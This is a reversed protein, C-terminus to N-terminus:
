LGPSPPPRPGYPSCGQQRHLARSSSPATSPHAWPHPGLLHQARSIACSATGPHHLLDLVCAGSPAPEAPGVSGVKGLPSWLSVPLTPAHTPGDQWPCAIEAWIKCGSCSVTVQAGRWGQRLKGDGDASSSPTGMGCWPLRCAEDQVSLCM